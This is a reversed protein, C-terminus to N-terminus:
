FHFRTSLLYGLENQDNLAKYIGGEIVWQPHIWQLGLTVQSRTAQTELWRGNLELVTNLETNLGWDQHEAPSLRYQWSIDYRGSDLRDSLGSQYLLDVDIEHRDEFTTWVFGAQFAVERDQETPIIAGALIGLRTTGSFTDDQWIIHRYLASLDGQRNDGSPSLRYPIGLLLTQKASLGYAASSIFSTTDGSQSYDVTLRVVIGGKEVPLAVFSRLGMAYSDTIALSLCLLYFFRYIKM